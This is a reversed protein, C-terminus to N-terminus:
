TGLVRGWDSVNHNGRSDLDKKADNKAHYCVHTHRALVDALMAVHRQTDEKTPAAAKTEVAYAHSSEEHCYM